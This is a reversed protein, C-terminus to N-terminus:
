SVAFTEASTKTICAVTIASKTEEMKFLIVIIIGVM